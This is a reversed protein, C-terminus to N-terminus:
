QDSISRQGVALGIKERVDIAPLHSMLTHPHKAQRKVCPGSKTAHLGNLGPTQHINVAQLPEIFEMSAPLKSNLGAIFTEGNEGTRFSSKL